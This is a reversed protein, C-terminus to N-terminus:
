HLKNVRLSIEIVQLLIIFHRVQYHVYVPVRLVKQINWVSCSLFFERKLKKSTTSVNSCLIIYIPRRWSKTFRADELRWLDSTTLVDYTLRSWSSTFWVDKLRQLGSREKRIDDRRRTQDESTTIKKLCGSSTKFVEADAPYHGKSFRKVFIM